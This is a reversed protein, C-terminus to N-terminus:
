KKKGDRTKKKTATDSGTEKLSNGVIPVILLRYVVAMAFMAYFFALSDSATLMRVFVELPYAFFKVAISIPNM